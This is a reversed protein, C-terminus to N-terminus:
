RIVTTASDRTCDRLDPTIAISCILVLATLMAVGPPEDDPRCVTGGAAPPLDAQRVPQQYTVPIPASRHLVEQGNIKNASHLMDCATSPGLVSANRLRFAVTRPSGDSRRRHALLSQPHCGRAPM